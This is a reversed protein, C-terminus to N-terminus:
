DTYEETLLPLAMHLAKLNGDLMSHQWTGQTLKQQAKESKSILSAIPALTRQLDEESFNDAVDSEALKKTILSSAINLAKIRNKLLTHQSTGQAFKKQSKESRDIMSAIAQLAEEMDEEVLKKDCVRIMVEATCSCDVHVNGAYWVELGEWPFSWERDCFEKLGKADKNDWESINEAGFLTQYLFAFDDAINKKLFLEQQIHKSLTSIDVDKNNAWEYVKALLTLLLIRAYRHDITECEILNEYVNFTNSNLYEFGNKDIIHKLFDKLTDMMEPKGEVREAEIFM